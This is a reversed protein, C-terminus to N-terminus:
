GGRTTFEVLLDPHYTSIFEYLKVLTLVSVQDTQDFFERTLPNPLLPGPAYCVM